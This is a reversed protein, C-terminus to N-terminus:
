PMEKVGATELDCNKLCRLHAIIISNRLQIDQNKLDLLTKRALVLEAYGLRGSRYASYTSDLLAEALVLDTKRLEQLRKKSRQYERAADIQDTEAVVKQIEASSYDIRSQAKLRKGEAGEYFPFFIPLTIGVGYTTTWAEGSPSGPLYLYHNRTVSFNLDPAQSWWATEETAKALDMAAQARGQDATTDSLESLLESEVDDPLNLSSISEHLPDRGLLRLLKRCTTIKRDSSAQLDSAAQRAQLASGIKEAQTAHGSEYSAKMSKYVTDLDSYTDKLLNETAQNTACDLYAQSILRVVEYRKAELEAKQLKAKATDIDHLAIAKGPLGVPLQIGWSQNVNNDSNAYQLQPENFIFRRWRDRESLDYQIKQNVLQPSSSLAQHVVESLNLTEEAKANACVILTMVLFKWM